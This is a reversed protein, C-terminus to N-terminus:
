HYLWFLSVPFSNVGVCNFSEDLCSAEAFNIFNHSVPILSLECHFLNVGRRLIFNIEVDSLGINKLLCRVWKNYFRYIVELFGSIQLLCKVVDDQFVGLTLFKTRIFIYIPAQSWKYAFYLRAINQILFSDKSIRCHQHKAKIVHVQIFNKMPIELRFVQQKRISNNLYCVKSHRTCKLIM